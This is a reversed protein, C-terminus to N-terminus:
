TIERGSYRHLWVWEILSIVAVRHIIDCVTCMHCGVVINIVDYGTHIVVCCQTNNIGCEAYTHDHKIVACVSFEHCWVEEIHCWMWEKPCWVVKHIVDLGSYRVERGSFRHWWLWGISSMVAVIHITDCGTYRHCWIGQIYSMIDVLYSMVVSQTLSVVSPM